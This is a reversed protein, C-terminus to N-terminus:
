GAEGAPAGNLFAAFLADPNHKARWSPVAAVAAATLVPLRELAERLAAGVPQGPGILMARERGAADAMWCGDPVVAPAGLALAEALIGSSRSGYAAADYPLLMLDTGALLALYEAPDLPREVLALEPGVMRQLARHAKQVVPDDGLGIRGSHITFRALGACAAVAQPLHGYGKELRAGGSFVVHPLGNRARDARDPVVVPLPVPRVPLGSGAAYEAALAETDAFLSLVTGLRTALRRLLSMVSEDAADDLDMEAPMRRLVIWIQGIAGPEPAELLGQLNAASVSHLLVADARGSGEARLAEALERALGDPAARRDLRRRIARFPEPARRALPEPLYSAANFVLQRLTGGGGQGQYRSAFTARSPIAGGAVLGSFARGALILPAVGRRAAAEAVSQSYGLHHGVPGTLGPDAIVLRRPTL